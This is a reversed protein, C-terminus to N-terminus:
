KSQNIAIAALADDSLDEARKHITANVEANVQLPLLKPYISVYFAKANDPDSKAWEVFADSGGLSNFAYEIAEKATKTTKNMSGKPRGKNKNVLNNNKAIKTAAMVFGGENSM